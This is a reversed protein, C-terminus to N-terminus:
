RRSRSGPTSKLYLARNGLDIIAQHDWLIEAGVIGGFPESFDGQSINLDAFAVFESGVDHNGLRFGPLPGTQVRPDKFDHLGKIRVNTEWAAVGAKKKISSNVMTAPAGTDILFSYESNAITGIVELRNDKTIKMPIYTFGMQEYISRQVPLPGGGKNFFLQRNKFNIIAGHKVLAPVGIIGGKNLFSGHIQNTHENAFLDLSAIALLQPGLEMGESTLKPAVVLDRQKGEVTVTKPINSNQPPRALGAKVAESHSILSGSCRYRSVV